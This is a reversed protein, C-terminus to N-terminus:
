SLRRDCAFWQDGLRWQLGGPAIGRVQMLGGHEGQQHHFRCLTVRNSAEDTGGQSRYHVHHEELNARSTCGPAM